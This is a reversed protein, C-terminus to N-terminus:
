RQYPNAEFVSYKRFPYLSLVLEFANYVELTNIKSSIPMEATATVEFAKQGYELSFGATNGPSWWTGIGFHGFNRGNEFHYRGIIGTHGLNAGSQYAWRVRPSITFTEQIGITFGGNVIVRPKLIDRDIVLGWQPENLNFAAMGLWVRDPGDDAMYFWTFGTSIVPFLRSDYQLMEGNDLGPNFGNGTFQSQTRFDDLNVSRNFMGAQLGLSLYYGGSFYVLYNYNLVAGATQVSGGPGSSEAIVSAGLGYKYRQRGGFMHLLSVVPASARASAGTAQSRFGANLMLRSKLPMAGPNVQFPTETFNTFNLHQAMGSGAIFLLLM